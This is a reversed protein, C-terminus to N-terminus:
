GSESRLTIAPNIRAAKQAQFSLTILSILLVICASLMFVWLSIGTRYAFDNLWQKMYLWAIPWAILNSALIWKLADWSFLALIQSPQAGM